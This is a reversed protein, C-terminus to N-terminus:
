RRQKPKVQLRINNCTKSLQGHADTNHGQEPPSPWNHVLKPCERRLHGEQGCQYCRPNRRTGNGYGRSMRRKSTQKTIASPKTSEGTVKEMLQREGRPDAMLCISVESRNSTPAVFLLHTNLTGFEVRKAEFNIKAKLKHLTDAGVLVHIIGGLAKEVVHFTIPTTQGGLGVTLQVTGVLPMNAGSAVVTVPVTPPKVIINANKTLGQVYEASILSVSSGTDVCARREDKGITLFVYVVGVKTDADGVIVTMSRETCCQRAIHGLKNCKYCKVLKMDTMPKSERGCNVERVAPGSGPARMTAPGASM